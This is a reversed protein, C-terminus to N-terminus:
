AAYLYGLIGIVIIITPLGTATIGRKTIEVKGQNILNILTKMSNDECQNFVQTFDSVFGCDM